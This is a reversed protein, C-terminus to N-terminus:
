ISRNSKTGPRRPRRIGDLKLFESAASPPNVTKELILEENRMKAVRLAGLLGNRQLTRM